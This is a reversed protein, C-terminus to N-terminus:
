SGFILRCIWVSVIIGTLDALLAAVVTHRINKIGVSGYYVTLTYFTTETSGMMVAAVRGAFSDPGYNKLLDTVIALAGSGSIPRMLALPMVESPIQLVNTLPKLAYTVLDLAGSARFAGIAALLGVLPPLIRITTELGDKAGEIFCDYVKTGQALGYSIIIFIMAPIASVSLIRVIGMNVELNVPKEQETM